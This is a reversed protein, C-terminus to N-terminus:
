FSVQAGLGVDLVPREVVLGDELGPMPPIDLGFRLEGTQGVHGQAFANLNLYSLATWRWDFRLAASQDSLNSLVSATFSMDEVKGPDALRVYGVGYHRGLYFVQFANNLLLWPYIESGDYGAGNYFYEAGFSVVDEDNYKISIEANADVQPIWEDSRDKETPFTLNGLDLDGEYYPRLTGKMVASEVRVDFPGVATSLDGGLRLPQDKQLYTSLTIETSGHFWEARLAGGVDDLRRAGRPAVIGYFNLGASEVPVHFKLLPVGTRVDFVSLPNFVVNLYDTPNWFRGTGWKIRQYGLTVFVKKDIDGKIWMQDLTVRTQVLPNGAFDTDGAEITFDSTVRTRAYVRVRDNPRADAFLDFVNPSNLTAAGPETNEVFSTQAQLWLQGGFELRRDLTDLTQAIGADSTSSTDPAPAAPDGGFLAAEDVPSSGGFLANEDIPPPDAPPEDAPPEEAFAPPVFAVLGLGVLASRM